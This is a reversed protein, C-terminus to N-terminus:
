ERNLVSKEYYNEASMDLHGKYSKSIAKNLTANLYILKDSAQEKKLTGYNVDIDVGELYLKMDEADEFEIRSIKYEFGVVQATQLLYVANNYKIIDTGELGEGLNYQNNLNLEVVGIYNFAKESNEELIYGNKDMSLYVDGSILLIYPERETYKVNLTDPFVREVKAENVYPNKEISNELFATDILFINKDKEKIVLSYIDGSSVNIGNQVIVKEVCFMDSNIAWISVGVVILILLTLIISFIHRPRKEQEKVDEKDKKNANEKISKEALAAGELGVLPITFEMDGAKKNAFGQAFETQIEELENKSGDKEVDYVVKSKEVKPEEKKKKGWM